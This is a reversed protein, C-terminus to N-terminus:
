MGNDIITVVATSPTGLIGGNPNQLAVNFMETGEADSDDFLTIDRCQMDGTSSTMPFSLTEPLTSTTDASLPFSCFVFLVHKHLAQRNYCGTNM